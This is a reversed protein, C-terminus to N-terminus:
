TEWQARENDAVHAEPLRRPVLVAGAGPIARARAEELLAAAAAQGNEGARSMRAAILGTVVPTPFSTGSWRAM